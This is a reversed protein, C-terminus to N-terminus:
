AYRIKSAVHIPWEEGAPLIVVPDAPDSTTRIEVKECSMSDLTRSVNDSACMWLAGAKFEVPMSARFENESSTKTVVLGDESVLVDVGTKVKDQSSSCAMAMLESLRRRDVIAAVPITRARTIFPLAVERSEACLSHHAVFEKSRFSVRSPSFAIEVRLSAGAMLDVMPKPIFQAEELQYDCKLLAASLFSRNTSLVVLGGEVPSVQVHRYENHINHSGCWVGGDKMAQGLAYGDMGMWNDVTIAPITVSSPDLLSTQFKANDSEIVMRGPGSRHLTITGDKDGRLFMAIASAPVIAEEMDVEAGYDYVAQSDNGAVSITSGNFLYAGPFSSKKTVISLKITAAELRGRMFTNTPKSM